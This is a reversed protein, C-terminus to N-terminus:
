EMRGHTKEIRLGYAAQLSKRLAEWKPSGKKPHKRPNKPHPTMAALEWVETELEAVSKPDAQNM